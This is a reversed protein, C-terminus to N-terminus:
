ATREAPAFLYCLDYEPFLNNRIKLAEPLTFDTIGNLKNNITKETTGILQALVLASIKKFAMAARLNNLM